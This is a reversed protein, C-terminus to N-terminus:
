AGAYTRLSAVRSSSSSCAATASVSPPGAARSRERQDADAARVVLARHDPGAAHRLLLEVPEAVGAGDAVDQAIVDVDVAGPELRGLGGPQDPQRDVVEVADVRDDRDHALLLLREGDPAHEPGADDVHQDHVLWFARIRASAAGPGLGRGQLPPATTGTTAM